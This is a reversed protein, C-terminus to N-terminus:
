ELDDDRVAFRIAKVIRAMAAQNLRGLSGVQWDIETKLIRTTEDAKVICDKPLGGEGAKLFVCHQEQKRRSIQQTTCPVVLVFNGSNLADRSVIVVPRKKGEGFPLFFIQGRQPDM